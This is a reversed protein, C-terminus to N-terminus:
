RAMFLIFKSHPADYRKGMGERFGIGHKMSLYDPVGGQGTEDRGTGGIQKHSDLDLRVEITCNGRARRDCEAARISGKGGGETEEEGGRKEGKVENM